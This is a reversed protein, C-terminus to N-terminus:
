IRRKSGAPLNNQTKVPLKTGIQPKRIERHISINQLVSLSDPNETSSLDEEKKDAKSITPEHILSINTISLIQSADPNEFSGLSSMIPKHIMFLGAVSKIGLRPMDSVEMSYNGTQSIVNNRTIVSDNGLRIAIIVSARRPANSNLFLGLFKFTLKEGAELLTDTPIEWQYSSSLINSTLLLHKEGQWIDTSDSIESYGAGMVDAEYSLKTMLNNYIDSLEDANRTYYVMSSDWTAESVGHKELISQMLAYQESGRDKGDKNDVDLYHAKHLDYLVDEFDSDGLVCSPRSTCSSAILILIWLVSSVSIRNNGM